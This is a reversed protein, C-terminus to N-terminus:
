EIAIDEYGRHLVLPGLASLQDIMEQVAGHFEEGIIEQNELILLIGSRKSSM